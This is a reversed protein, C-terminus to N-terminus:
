TSRPRLGRRGNKAREFDEILGARSNKCETQATTPSLRPSDTATGGRKGADSSRATSIVAAVSGIERYISSRYGNVLVYIMKETKECSALPSLRTEAVIYIPSQEAATGVTRM